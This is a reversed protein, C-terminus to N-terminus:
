EGNQFTLWAAPIDVRDFGDERKVLSWHEKLLRIHKESIGVAQVSEPRCRTYLLWYGGPALLRRVNARYGTRADEQLGHYCGIDLILDFPGVVRDLKAVNERFIQVRDGLGARQIRRQAQRVAKLVFDIGVVHWGARALALANTGTGCGMDLASGAPQRAIFELLEPPSIGTDWPPQRFYWLNFKLWHLLHGPM